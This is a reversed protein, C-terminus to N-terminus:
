PKTEEGIHSTLEM